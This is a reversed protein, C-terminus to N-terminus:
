RSQFAYWGLLDMLSVAERLLVALNDLSLVEFRLDRIQGDTACRMQFLVSLIGSGNYQIRPLRDTYNDGSITTKDLDPVM